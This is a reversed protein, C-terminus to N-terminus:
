LIIAICDVMFPILPRTLSRMRALGHIDPGSIALRGYGSIMNLRKAFDSLYALDRTMLYPGAIAKMQVRPRSPRKWSRKKNVSWKISVQVGHGLVNM